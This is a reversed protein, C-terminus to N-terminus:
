MMHHGKVVPIAEKYHEDDPIGFCKVLQLNGRDLHEFATFLLCGCHFMNLILQQVENFTINNM